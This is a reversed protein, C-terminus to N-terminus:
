NISKSRNILEFYLEMRRRELKQDFSDMIVDHITKSSVNMDAEFECDFDFHIISRNLTLHNYEFLEDATNKSKAHSLFILLLLDNDTEYLHKIFKRCSKDNQYKELATWDLELENPIDFWLEERKEWAGYMLFDDVSDVSFKDLLKKLYKDKSM